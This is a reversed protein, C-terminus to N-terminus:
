AVAKAGYQNTFAEKMRPYIDNMLGYVKSEMEICADWKTDGMFRMIRDALRNKGNNIGALFKMHNMAVRATAKRDQPDAKRTKRYVHIKDIVQDLTVAGSCLAFDVDGNQATANHGFPSLARNGGLVTRPTADFKAMEQLALECETPEAIKPSNIAREQISKFTNLNSM